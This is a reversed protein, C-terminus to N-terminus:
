FRFRKDFKKWSNKVNTDIKMDNEIQIMEFRKFDVM